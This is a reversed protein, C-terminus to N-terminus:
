RDRVPGGRRRVPRGSSTRVSRTTGARVSGFAITEIHREVFQRRQNMLGTLARSCAPRPRSELHRDNDYVAFTLLVDTIGVGLSAINRDLFSRCGIGIAIVAVAIM